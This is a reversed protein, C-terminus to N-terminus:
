SLGQPTTDCNKERGQCTFLIVQKHDATANLIEMAYSLRTDDFRVLADDLVLPAHPTLADAVALRLALYLQDATGDSRWLGSRTVTEGEAAVEMSLDEKLVLRDYRGGTLGHFLQGAQRSIAPAFKRQLNAEAQELFEMALTTAGYIDELQRIRDEVAALQRSLVAEQGLAEMRGTLQGSLQQLQQQRALGDRLKRDTEDATLTLTDPFAPAPAKKAMQSLTLAHQEAQYLTQQAQALLRHHQAVQQWYRLADHISVGGTCGEMNDLLAAKDDNYQQCLAAYNNYEGEYSRTEELWSKAIAVWNEPDSDPYRAAVAARQHARQKGTYLRFGVLCVALVLPALAAMWGVFYVLAIAGLVCAAALIWPLPSTGKSLNVYSQTDAEAQQLAQAPTLGAFCAPTEPAVPVPPLQRDSLANQQLQLQELHLIQNEATEPDPLDGAAALLTEYHQKAEAQAQM